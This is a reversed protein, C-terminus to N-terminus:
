MFIQSFRDQICYFGLLLTCEFLFQELFDCLASVSCINTVWQFHLYRCVIIVTFLIFAESCLICKIHNNSWDEFLFINVRFTWMVLM